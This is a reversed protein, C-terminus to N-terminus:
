NEVFFISFVPSRYNRSIERFKLPRKKLFFCKMSRGMGSHEQVQQGRGHLQKEAPDHGPQDVGLEPRQRGAEQGAGAAVGASAITGDVANEEDGGCRAREIRGAPGDGGNNREVLYKDGVSGFGIL